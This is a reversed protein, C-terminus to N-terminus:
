PKRASALLAMSEPGLYRSLLHGWTGSGKLM